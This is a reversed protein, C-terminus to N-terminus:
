DVLNRGCVTVPVDHKRARRITAGTGSRSNLYALVFLQSSLRVMLDDREIYAAGKPLCVGRNRMILLGDHAATYDFLDSNSSPSAATVHGSDTLTMPTSSRPLVIILPLKISNHDEAWQITHNMAISDAGLAGGTMVVGGDNLWDDLATRFLQEDTSDYGHRPGIFAATPHNILSENGIRM